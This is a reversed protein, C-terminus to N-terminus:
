LNDFWAEEIKVVEVIEISVGLRLEKLKEALEGGDLLDIPPAGDRTAEKVAGPTFTGTTIFLGKDARGVMAGRFDRIESPGVSGKYRKCQFLVHFSMLGHVRAIGRGDIGGDGSRGTVTVHTFGSERLVRQVLREFAAASLKQTLMGHLKQKWEQEEAVESSGPSDPERSEGEKRGLAKVARVVEQPNLKDTQKAKPTLAWIGRSSNELLGYKKLYTRAWALRYGIETQNSKEADHAQSIVDDPLHELEVVKDYMEEISASGGLAQLARLLPNILDDFTPLKVAM